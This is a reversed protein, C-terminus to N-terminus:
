DDQAKRLEEQAQLVDGELAKIYGPLQDLTYTGGDHTVKVVGDELFIREGNRYRLDIVEALPDRSLTLAFEYLGRLRRVGFHESPSPMERDSMM